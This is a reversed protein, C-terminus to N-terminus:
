FMDEDPVDSPGAAAAQQEWPKTLFLADALQEWRKEDPTIRRVSIEFDKGVNTNQGAKLRALVYKERDEDTRMVIRGEVVTFGARTAAAANDTGVSWGALRITYVDSSCMEGAKFGAHAPLARRAEIVQGWKFGSVSYRVTDGDNIPQPDTLDGVIATTGPMAVFWMLEEQLPKGNDKFKPQKTEYDNRQRTTKGAFAGVLTQGLENMKAFPTGTGTRIDAAIAM